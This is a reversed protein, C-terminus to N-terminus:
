FKAKWRDCENRGSLRQTTINCHLRNLENVTLFCASKERYKSQGGSNKLSLFIEKNKNNLNHFRDFASLFITRQTRLRGNDFHLIEKTETQKCIEYFMTM